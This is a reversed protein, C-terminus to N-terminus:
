ATRRRRRAGPKAAAAMMVSARPMPAFAAMKLTTRATTRFGGGYRSGDRTTTKRLSRVLARPEIV